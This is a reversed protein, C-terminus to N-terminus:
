LERKGISLGIVAVRGLDLHRQRGQNRRFVRGLAPLQDAEIAGRGFHRWGSIEAAIAGTEARADAVGVGLGVRRVDADGVAPAIQERRWRAVARVAGRYYGPGAEDRRVAARLRAGVRAM